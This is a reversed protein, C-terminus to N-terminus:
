RGPRTASRAPASVAWCRGRTPAASCSRPSSSACSTSRAPTASRDRWPRDARWCASTIGRRGLEDLAAAVQRRGHARPLRHGRGRRRDPRRRRPGARRRRRGRDAPGRDVTAVLQRTSRCGPARLRLGGAHAPPRDGDRATLLPDDALATGIGIAVADFEARWRHVLERSVRSRLDLQSDGPPPRSAATSAVHASKLHGAPPRHPRAQPLGPQAAQRRRAEPGGALEVEVGGDRLIGPGRGSAKETPDDSAIVVRAIGAELIAEACPPQRGQHACPELTVYMTAGAPDAGRGRPLGRDRCRPTCSASARRSLGRRDGRRRAGTLSRRGASEPQGCRARGDALELARRMWPSSGSDRNSDPEKGDIAISQDM